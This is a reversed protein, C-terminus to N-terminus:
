RRKWKHIYRFGAFCIKLKFPPYSLFVNLIRSVNIWKYVQAIHVKIRFHVKPQFHMDLLTIHANDYQRMRFHNKIM